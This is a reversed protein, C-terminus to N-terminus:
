SPGKGRTVEKLLWDRAARWYRRVSRPTVELVEAIEEESLGAFFRLEAVKAQDPQEKELRGLARDLLILELNADEAEQGAVAIGDDLTVQQQKGGRKQRTRKRAHDVLVRRMARAAVRFFQSRSKWESAEQNVLRLYAENVLATAQLTHGARESQLRRRAIKRLDDYVAAYLQEAAAEDGRCADNLIQTVDTGARDRERDSQM